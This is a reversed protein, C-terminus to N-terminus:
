AYQDVFHFMQGDECNWCSIRGNAWDVNEPKIERWGMKTGCKNCEFDFPAYEDTVESLRVAIVRAPPGVKQAVELADLPSCYVKTTCFGDAVLVENEMADKAVVAYGYLNHRRVVKDIVHKGGWYTDPSDAEWQEDPPNGRRSVQSLEEGELLVRLNGYRDITANVVKVEEKLSLIEPLDQQLVKMVVRRPERQSM